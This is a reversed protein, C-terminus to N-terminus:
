KKFVARFPNNDPFILVLEWGENGMQQIKKELAEAKANYPGVAVVKYEINKKAYSEKVEFIPKSVLITLSISIILLFAKTFRDLQM